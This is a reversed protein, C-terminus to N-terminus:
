KGPYERLLSDVIAKGARKGSSLAFPVEDPRGYMLIIDRVCSRVDNVNDGMVKVVKKRYRGLIGTWSMFFFTSAQHVDVKVAYRRAIKEIDSAEVEPRPVM